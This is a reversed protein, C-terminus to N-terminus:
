SQLLLYCAKKNDKQKTKSSNGGRYFTELPSLWGFAHKVSHHSQNVVAWCSKFWRWVTDFWCGIITKPDREAWTHGKWMLMGCGHDQMDQTRPNDRGLTPVTHVHGSSYDWAQILPSPQWAPLACWSVFNISWCFEHGYTVIDLKKFISHIIYFHFHHFLSKVWSKWLNIRKVFM